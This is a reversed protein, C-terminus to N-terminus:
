QKNRVKNSDDATAASKWHRYTDPSISEPYDEYIQALCNFLAFSCAELGLVKTSSIVRTLRLHNHNGRTLWNRSKATFDPARKVQVNGNAPESLQLGYFDLLLLLSRMLRMRLFDSRRFVGITEESLVPAELNFQSKVRLPFLWQIYEHIAKLRADDWQWVEEIKRGSGDTGEGSYFRIIVDPTM